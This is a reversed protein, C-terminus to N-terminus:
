RPWLIDRTGNGWRDGALNGSQDRKAMEKKESIASYSKDGPFIHTPFGSRAPHPTPFGNAAISHREFMDQPILM